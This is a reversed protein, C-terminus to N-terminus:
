LGPWLPSLNRGNCSNVSPRRNFRLVPSRKTNRRGVRLRDRPQELQMAVDSSSVSLLLMRVGLSWFIVMVQHPIYLSGLRAKVATGVSIQVACCVSMANETLLPQAATIGMAIHKPKTAHVDLEHAAKRWLCLLGSFYTYCVILVWAEKKLLFWNKRNLTIALFLPSQSRTRQKRVMKM